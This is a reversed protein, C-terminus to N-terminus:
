QMATQMRLSLKLAGFAKTQVLVVLQWADDSGEDDEDADGGAREFWTELSWPAPLPYWPVYLLLVTQLAEAPSQNVRAQLLTGLKLLEGLKAAEQTQGMQN